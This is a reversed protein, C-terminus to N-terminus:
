WTTNVGLLAQLPICLLLLITVCLSSVMIASKELFQWLYPVHRATSVSVVSKEKSVQEQLRVISFSKSTLIVKGINDWLLNMCYSVPLRNFSSGHSKKTTLVCTPAPSCSSPSCATPDRYCSRCSTCFPLPPPPLAVARIYFWNYSGAM